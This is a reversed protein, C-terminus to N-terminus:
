VVSKRDGRHGSTGFSVQQAPVAPDPKIDYYAAVLKGVDVLM